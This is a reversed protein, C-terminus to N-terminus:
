MLSELSSVDSELAAASNKVALDIGTRCYFGGNVQTAFMVVNRFRRFMEPNPPTMDRWFDNLNGQYTLGPLNYIPDSLAITPCGMGLAFSGVTSNVTVIGVARELLRGLDGTELYDVRTV